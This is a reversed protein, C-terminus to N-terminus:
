LRPKDSKFTIYTNIWYHGPYHKDGAYLVRTSAGETRYAIATSSGGDGAVCILQGSDTLRQVLNALPYSTSAVTQTVTFIYKKRDGTPGTEAVGFWPHMAYLGGVLNSAFGGLANQHTPPLPVVGTTIGFTGKGSASLYEASPQELGHTGGVSTAPNQVGSVVCGGHCRSTMQHNAMGWIRGAHGGEFYCFNGNLILDYSDGSASTVGPLGYIKPTRHYTEIVKMDTAEHRMATIRIQQSGSKFIRVHVRSNKETMYDRAANFYKADGIQSVITFKLKDEAWTESQDAKGFKMVLDGEAQATFDAGDLRVYLKEPLKGTEETSLAFPFTMKDAPLCEKTKYFSLKDIAPHEFWVAGWTAACTVSIEEADDDDTASAPKSSDTDEKDWAGNSLNDNAFLYETAKEKQEDTATAKAGATKLTRDGGDIRGNNNLDSIVEFPVLLAADSANNATVKALIIGSDNIDIAKTLTTGLPLYKQLDVAVANNILQGAHDTGYTSTFSGIMQANSNIRSAPGFVKDNFTSSRYALRWAAGEGAFVALDEFSGLQAVVFAEPNSNSLDSAYVPTGQVFDQLAIETDAIRMAYKWDTYEASYRGPPGEVPIRRFNIMQGLLLNNNNATLPYFSKGVTPSMDGSPLCTYEDDQIQPSGTTWKAFGIWASTNESNSAIYRSFITGSGIAFSEYGKDFTNTHVPTM